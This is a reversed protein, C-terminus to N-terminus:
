HPEVVIEARGLREAELVIRRTFSRYGDQALAVSWAGPELGEWLVCTVRGEAPDGEPRLFTEFVRGSEEHRLVLEFYFHARFSENVGPMLVLDLALHAAPATVLRLDTTEFRRVRVDRVVPLWRGRGRAWPAQEVSSLEVQYLGPALALRFGPAEVRRSWIEDGDPTRVRLVAPLLSTGEVSVLDVRIGSDADISPVVVRHDSENGIAPAEITAEVPAGGEAIVRVSWSSGHPVFVDARGRRDTDLEM